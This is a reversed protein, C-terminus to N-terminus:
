GREEDPYGFRVTINLEQGTIIGDVHYGDGESKIVYRPVSKSEEIEQVMSEANQLEMENVLSRLKWLRWELHRECEADLERIRKRYKNCLILCVEIM